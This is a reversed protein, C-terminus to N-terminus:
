AMKAADAVCPNVEITVHSLWGLGRLRAKYIAPPQPHDCVVAAILAAHGPGVRWLHLDSVRDSGIELRARVIEVLRPDPVADILVAASARILGWSWHAIIIAGAIGMLPDMWIWGFLRGALLAVIAFVSTMADALVHFYAARVNHDHAHHGHAAHHHHHHDREFLLWASVLNVALGIVAITTAQDFGIAVPQIFRLASEYAIFLAILGLLLASSYAALEGLKGTGFCFRPDHAHRSAIRYALAAMALATAHTAMHWGDAVVAMSGYITGGAIEAVMMVATLAAVIWTRREYLDHRQGLFVHDHRWPQLSHTHM